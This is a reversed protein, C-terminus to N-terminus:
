KRRVRDTLKKVVAQFEKRAAALGAPTKKDPGKVYDMVIGEADVFEQCIDAIETAIDIPVNTVGNADGHLLDGHNVM